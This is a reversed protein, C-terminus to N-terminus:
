FRSGCPTEDIRFFDVDSGSQLMAKVPRGSQVPMATEFSDNNEVERQSLIECAGLSAITSLLLVTSCLRPTIRM